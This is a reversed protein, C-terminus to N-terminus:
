MVDSIIDIYVEEKIKKTQSNNIFGCVNMIIWYFYLVNYLMKIDHQTHQTHPAKQLIM